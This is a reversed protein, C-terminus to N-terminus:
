GGLYSRSCPHAVVGVQNKYHFDCYRRPHSRGEGVCEHSPQHPAPPPPQPSDWERGPRVPGQKSPGCHGRCCGRRGRAALWAEAVQGGSRLGSGPDRQGHLVFTDEESSQQSGSPQSWALCHGSLFIYQNLGHSFSFCSTFFLWVAQVM